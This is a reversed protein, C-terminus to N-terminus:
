QGRIVPFLSTLYMCAVHSQITMQKYRSMSRFCVLFLYHGQNGKGYMLTGLYKKRALLQEPGVMGLGPIYKGHRLDMLIVIIVFIKCQIQIEKTERSERTYWLITTCFINDQDWHRMRLIKDPGDNTCTVQDWNYWTERLLSTYRPPVCTLLDLSRDQVQPM